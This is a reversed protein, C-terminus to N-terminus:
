LGCKYILNGIHCLKWIHINKKSFVYYIESKFAIDDM